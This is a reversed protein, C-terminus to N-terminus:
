DLQAQLLTLAKRLQPDFKDAANADTPAARRADRMNFWDDDSLQVTVDPAIGGSILAGTRKDYKKHIDTKSPTFYHQTTIKVASDDDLPFITQVLGKGYTRTGVLKGASHDKIAGAVIESASASGENVLVIVPYEGRSLGTERKGPEAELATMKGNKEQTWVIVGETVFRSAIEQAVTLLGGPNDRLDFVMGRMGQKELKAVAKAFQADANEGFLSLSVYGISHTTDAMRSEVLPAAVLARTLQVTVPAPTKARRLTLTVSTGPTGKLLETVADLSKGSLPRKNIQTLIDGPVIGMKAAPSEPVTQLVVVKGDKNTDLTTGIGAFVGSTEEMNAAYEKPTWFQTYRDNLVGLMGSIAAYTLRTDDPVKGSANQPVYHAHINRMVALYTEAPPLKDSGAHASKGPSSPLLAGAGFGAITLAALLILRKTTM